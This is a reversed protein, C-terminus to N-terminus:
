EGGVNRRVFDLLLPFAPEPMGGHDFGGLERLESAGHGANEMMRVFYANEEYRGMLELDRDGTIALLPPADGRVHYLPAWEDVVPQSGPIGREKRVTFHTITHGSFPIAGALRDADIDHAALWRKDLAVMSALYGGASHGSVFVADPSGGYSAINEFVWAVAAAADELYSPAEVRPSLRYNAAAVAIGRNRLALPISRQGTSIGGGHFWVVTPFQKKRAPVYLDLECRNRAYGSEAGPRYPIDTVLRYDPDSQLPMEPFVAPLTGAWDRVQDLLGRAADPEGAFLMDAADDLLGTAEENGATRQRLEYLRVPLRLVAPDPSDLGSHRQVEELYRYGYKWTPEIVTGEGFDNWTALQVVRATGTLSRSLTEAFTQGDRPDIFGYSAHLGAEAYYDHFGPFAAPIVPRGGASTAMAELDERWQAATLRKGDRVPPWEFGGSDEGLQEIAHPLGFLLPDSTLKERITDWQEQELYQPGFVPVVPRGELRVYIEDGFWNEELWRLDALGAEVTEEADIAGGAVRHKISQDEYCIALRLGAKRLWPVLAQTAEHIQGYDRYESIGYWDVIVGGIGALKMLLVHCELADPDRSDYPGILPYDHSAIRRRGDWRIEDPDRADKTWHWGWSGSVGRTAYWPMYHALLLHEEGEGTEGGVPGLGCLAVAVPLFLLRTARSRSLGLLPLGTM